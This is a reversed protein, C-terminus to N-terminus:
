GICWGFGRGTWVVESMRARIYDVQSPTYNGEDLVSLKGSMEAEKASQLHWRHLGSIVAQRAGGNNVNSSVALFCM